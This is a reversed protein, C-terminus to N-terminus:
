LLNYVNLMFKFAPLILNVIYQYILKGNEQAIEVDLFSM